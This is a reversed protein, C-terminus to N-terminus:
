FLADRGTAQQIQRHLNTQNEWTQRPISRYVDIMDDCLLDAIVSRGEILPMRYITQEVKVPDTLYFSGYAAATLSICVDAMFRITRFLIGGKPDQQQQQQQKQHSQTFSPPISITKSTSSSSLFPNIELSHYGQTTPSNMTTPTPHYRKTWFSRFVRLGACLFLFTGMGIAMGQFLGVHNNIETIRQREAAYRPSRIKKDIQDLTAQDSTISHVKWRM